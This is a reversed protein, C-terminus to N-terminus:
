GPNSSDVEYLSVEFAGFEETDLKIWDGRQMHAGHVEAAPEPAIPWGNDDYGVV